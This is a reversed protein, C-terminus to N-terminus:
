LMERRSTDSDSSVYRAVPLHGRGHTQLWTLLRERVHCRLSWLKASDLASVVARIEVASPTLETVHLAHVRKDWLDTADLIRGLEARVEEVPVTYDAHLLVAGVLDSTTKSLNRFPKEIFYTVPVVLRSRDWLQVAVYTLNIEEVVGTQNEVDVTDGIKVPQTIAIHLSALLNGVTRQAALGIVLGFVGASALLSLGVGSVSEFQLLVLAIGILLVLGHLLGAPVRVQTHIARQKAPDSTAGWTIKSSGSRRRAGAPPRALHRHRDAAFPRPRAAHGPTTTSDSCRVALHVVLLTVALRTPGILVSVWLEDWPSATRQELVGPRELGWQLLTGLLLGALTLIALGSWQWASLGLFSERTLVEPLHHEFGFFGYM